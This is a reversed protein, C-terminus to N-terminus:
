LKTITSIEFYLADNKLFQINAAPRCALEAHSIFHWNIEEVTNFTAVSEYEDDPRDWTVTLKCKRNEGDEFHNILELTFRATVPWVLQDDYEGKMSWLDVNVSRHRTTSYGNADIGVCFKYGCMHTYMPPSKWDNFEDKAKEITFNEMRFRRSLGCMSRLRGHEAVFDKRQEKLIEEFKRDQEQLKKEQEKLKREQVQLEREQEQLKREQEQLKDQIKASTTAMMLLHTKAKKRMHEEEDERLFREACGIHKLECEVEQLPCIKLHEKEM